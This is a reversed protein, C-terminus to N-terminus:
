ARYTQGFDGLSYARGAQETEVPPGAQTRQGVTGLVVCGVPCPLDGTKSAGALACHTSPSVSASFRRGCFVDTHLAIAIASYTCAFVASPTGATQEGAEGRSTSTWHGTTVGAPARRLRRPPSQSGGDRPLAPPVTSRYYRPTAAAPLASPFPSKIIPDLEPGGFPPWFQM